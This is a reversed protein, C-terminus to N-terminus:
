PQGGAGHMVMRAKSSGQFDPKQSNSLFCSSNVLNHNMIQRESYTGKLRFYLYFHSDRM